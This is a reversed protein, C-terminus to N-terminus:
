HVISNMIFGHCDHSAGVNCNVRVGIETAYMYTYTNRRQCKSHRHMVWCEDSYRGIASHSMEWNAYPFSHYVVVSTATIFYPIVFCVNKLVTDRLLDCVASKGHTEIINNSVNIYWSWWQKTIYHNWVYRHLKLILVDSLCSSICMTKFCPQIHDRDACPAIIRKVVICPM